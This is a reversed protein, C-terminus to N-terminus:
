KLSAGQAKWEEIFDKFGQSILRSDTHDNKWLEDCVRELVSLPVAKKAAAEIRQKYTECEQKLKSTDNAIQGSQEWICHEESEEYKELLDLAIERLSRVSGVM